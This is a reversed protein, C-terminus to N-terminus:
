NGKFVARYAYGVAITLIFQPVLCVIVTIYILVIYFAGVFPNYEFWLLQQLVFTKVEQFFIAILIVVCVFVGLVIFKLCRAAREPDEMGTTKASEKAM